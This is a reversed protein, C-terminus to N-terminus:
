PFLGLVLMNDRGRDQQLRFDTQKFGKLEEFFGGGEPAGGWSVGVSLRSQAGM